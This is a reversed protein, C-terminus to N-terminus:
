ARDFERVPRIEIAGYDAIPLKKAWEVAADLDAVDLLYYGALLEKTEAYPGDTLTGDRLTTATEVGQLADGGLLVGAGAMEESVAFWRDLQSGPEPTKDPDSALLLLYKM